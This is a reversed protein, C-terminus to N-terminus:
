RFKLCTGADGAYIELDRVNDDKFLPSIYKQAKIENYWHVPLAPSVYLHSM